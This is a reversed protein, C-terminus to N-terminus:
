GADAVANGEGRSRERREVDFNKLISGPDTVVGDSRLVGAITRALIRLDLGFSRNEVYWVDRALRDDWAARNRGHIQAWGTIGPRVAFRLRERGDFYDLYDMRLPRPGVLSMDGKLVNFLEPLEDLSTRRLFRGLPTLRESDALERGDPGTMSRLTRFKLMVFPREGRGPRVQRFLATERLALRIAIAVSLLIPSLLALGAAATVVDFTRKAISLNPATHLRLERRYIELLADWMNEPAFESRVRRRAAEGHRRRLEPSIAYSLIATELAASDGAPVLMGTIGDLVADRCGSVDAAVVPLSMAAAELLSTPFGERYSPLVVLDSAAYLAPIDNIWGVMAVTPDEHLAREVGPPLSDRDDPAGAVILRVRPRRRAVGAWARSLEALGKDRVLRGVFAVVFEGSGIGWRRRCGDRHGNAFRAPNFRGTADVGNISGALPLSCKDAACLGADILAARNSESVSLVRTALRCSVATAQDLLRRTLGRATLQPLGHIHFIRVPVGALRAAILAVLGAKPTHAHVIRPSLKRFLRWLRIVAWFDALPSVSRPMRVAFVPISEARGFEELEAGASSVAFVEFGHSRLARPQGSLFPLSQAASAVHILRISVSTSASEFDV